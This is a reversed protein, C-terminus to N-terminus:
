LREWNFRVGVYYVAGHMPGWTLTSDFNSGWPNSADIIPNKQKFGTLNEGGVYISWHRFYRTVQVNLQEYAKYRNNWAPIGQELMYSQPLRGGGNLQLTVDFQWIGLPTQYSATLLGKYRGVFPRERLVGGYTTKVDTLRYAATLTFGKFFPYSAEAQFTHSYSKGKLQTFHVEHPDSDMDVVMQRLFDTYYYELNLNLIKHFLPIYLAASVGYNWAEEMDLDPDIVVRRSSALLYNNEALAHTSRYGKGASARLNFIENPAWKVHARPTVFTGYVSSYDARLGAMIMLKDNWNYTYQVYAGPVIEKDRAGLTDGTHSLKYSQDYDDYNLSLGTSLSNRKDFETEFMLSAYGNWQDVDYLKYGYGADQRHLSGSLILAVNTNKEKDFIYANKTFAEYRETRIDIDYRPMGDTARYSRMQGGTRDEMLAKIGAQFVYRDGMYAWRNQFNYQEVRPFDMFGDDNSDHAMLNNEYHALLATSVRQNLHINGDFNAEIKALSNAFLNASVSETTQPKKFEVNIQGTISEYGNKVSSAGKSVQISQMWPGPIYGLAYPSAVGRYNPINEALMQVYTGSLGLLKIQKAGTAADSYSVDVSPNTTFSEGLNCCAARSLEATSIMDQNLIGARIKMTGMRRASVQVEDMVAGDQLVIEWVTDVRNIHITDSRYGVFRVVLKDSTGTEPLSFKGSEGTTTGTTTGLWFVNAGIIPEGAIDKVIGRVQSFASSLSGLLFLPFILYRIM